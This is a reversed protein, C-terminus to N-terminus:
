EATWSTTASPLEIRNVRLYGYAGKREKSASPSETTTGAPRQKGWSPTREAGDLVGLLARELADQIADWTPSKGSLAGQVASVAVATDEPGVNAGLFVEELRDMLALGRKLRDWFPARDNPM